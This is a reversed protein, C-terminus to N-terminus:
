VGPAVVVRGAINELTRFNILHTDGSIVFLHLVLLTGLRRDVLLPRPSLLRLGIDPLHACISRCEM